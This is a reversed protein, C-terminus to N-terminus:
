AQQRGEVTGAQDPAAVDGCVALGDAKPRARCRSDEHVRSALSCTVGERRHSLRMQGDM